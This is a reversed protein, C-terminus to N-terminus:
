NKDVFLWDCRTCRKDRRAFLLLLGLLLVALLWAVQFTDGISHLIRDVSDGSTLSLVLVAAPPLILLYLFGNRTHRWGRSLPVLALSRHRCRPCIWNEICQKESWRDFEADEAAEEASPDPRSLVERALELEPERVLVEAQPTQSAERESVPVRHELCPIGESELQACVSAAETAPVVCLVVYEPEEEAGEERSRSGIPAPFVFHDSSPVKDDSPDPGAM